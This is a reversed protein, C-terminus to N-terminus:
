EEDDEEEEEEEEDEDDDDDDDDDNSKAVLIIIVIAGIILLLLLAGAAILIIMTLDDIGAFTSGSNTTDDTGDQNQKTDEDTQDDKDEVPEEYVGISKWTITSHKKAFAHATSNDLGIITFGKGYNVFTDDAIKVTPNSITVSTLYPNDAFAAAGIETVNAPIIIDGILNAGGFANAAIQTLTSPLTVSKLNVCKAFANEGIVTVGEPIVIAEISAAAAQGGFLNAGIETVSTGNVTSPIVVLPSYSGSTKNYGTVKGGDNTFTYNKKDTLTPAKIKEEPIEVFENGNAKAYRAATSNAVGKITVSKPIASTGILANPNKITISNLNLNGVFANQGITDCYVDLVIDGRLDANQFSWMGVERLSKPFTVSVLNKCEIFASNGILTYGEPVILASVYNCSTANKLFNSAVASLAAEKVVTGDEKTVTATLPLKVLGGDGEYSLVRYIDESFTYTFKGNADETTSYKAYVDEIAVFQHGNAVAYAAATSGAPAKIVAGAPFVDTGFEVISNYITVETINTSAFANNGISKVNVPIVVNTLKTGRFASAGIRNVASYEPKEFTVSTLGTNAFAGNAITVVGQPVTVTKLNSAGLFASSDITDLTSPLKVNVLNSAGEFASIGITTYGEPIEVAYIREKDANSFAKSAIHTIVGEKETNEEIYKAKSPLIYKGATLDSSPKFGTLSLISAAFETTYTAGADVKSAVIQAKEQEEGEVRAKEEELNKKIEPDIESTTVPNAKDLKVKMSYFYNETGSTVFGVTGSATTGKLAFDSEYTSYVASRDSGILEGDEGGWTYGDLRTLTGADTDLITNYTNQSSPKVQYVIRSGDLTIKIDTKQGTAVRWADDTEPAAFAHGKVPTYTEGSVEVRKNIPFVGNIKKLADGTLSTITQTINHAENKPILSGNQTRTLGAIGLGGFPRLTFQMGVTGQGENAFINTGSRDTLASYDALDARAIVGIFGDYFEPIHGKSDPTGEDGFQLTAEITYDAFDELMNSKLLIMAAQSNVRTIQTADGVINVRTADAAFPYYKDTLRLSKVGTANKTVASEGAVNTNDDIIPAKRTDEIIYPENVGASANWAKIEEGGISRTEAYLWNDTNFSSLDEEALYYDDDGTKNVFIYIYDFAADPATGMALKLKFVGEGIASFEAKDSDMHADLKSGRVASDISWVLDDGYTFSGPVISFLQDALSIKENVHMKVAPNDGDFADVNNGTSPLMTEETVNLKVRLGFFGNTGNGTLGVTGRKPTGVVSAFEGYEVTTQASGNSNYPNITTKKIDTSQNVTDLVTTTTGDQKTLNYIINKGSLTISVTNKGYGINYKRYEARAPADGGASEQVVPSITSGNVTGFYKHDETYYGAFASTGEETLRGVCLGSYKRLTLGLGDKVFSVPDAEAITFYNGSTIGTYGGAPAAAVKTYDLDARVVLGSNRWRERGINDNDNTTTVEHVVDYEVTYDAFDSLMESKYFMVMTSRQVSNKVKLIKPKATDFQAAVASYEAYTNSGDLKTTFSIPYLKSTFPKTSYDQGSSISFIWESQDFGQGFDENVIYFDDDGAKNAMVYVRMKEEAATGKKAYVDMVFTGTGLTNITKKADNVIINSAINGTKETDLVFNLDKGAYSNGSAFLFNVDKLEVQRNEYMAIAPSLYTIGVPEPDSMGKPMDEAGEVNLKVKLGFLGTAYGGSRLIGVTGREPTGVASTVESYTVASQSTTGTNVNAYPNYTHMGIANNKNAATDLITNTTGNNKTLKYVIDQGSLKVTITNRGFGINYNRYEELTPKDTAADEDVDAVINLGGWGDDAMSTAFYKADATYYSKRSAAADDTLRTVALGSYKNLGLALGGKSGIFSEPTGIINYANNEVTTDYTTAATEYNVDARVVLGTKNKWNRQADTDSTTTVAWVLSYEITYDAFDSLMESKYFMVATSNATNNQAKLIKPRTGIGSWFAGVPAVQSYSAFANGAGGANAYDVAYLKNTYPADKSSGNTVGLIWESEDFGQDFDENVIYFNYDDAVNTMVYVNQTNTGYTATLKTVGVEETAIQTINKVGDNWTIQDGSVYEGNYTFQVKVDSLKLVKDKFMPIAPSGFTVAYQEVARPTPGGGAGAFVSLTTSISTIVVTLALVASLVKKHINGIKAKM